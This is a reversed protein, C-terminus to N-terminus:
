VTYRSQMNMLHQRTKEGMSEETLYESFNYEFLDSNILFQLNRSDGFMVFFEHDEPIWLLIKSDLFEILINKFCNLEFFDTAEHLQTFESRSATSGYDFAWVQFRKEDLILAIQAIEESSPLEPYVVSKMENDVIYKNNLVANGLIIDNFKNM